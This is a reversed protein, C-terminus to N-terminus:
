SAADEETTAEPLEATSLVVGTATQGALREAEVIDNFVAFDEGYKEAFEKYGVQGDLATSLTETLLNVFATASSNSTRQLTTELSPMPLQAMRLLSMIPGPIDGFIIRDLLKTALLLKRM